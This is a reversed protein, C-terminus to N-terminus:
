PVCRAADPSVKSDGWEHDGCGPWWARVDSAGSHTARPWGDGFACKPYSRNHWRVLQRFRCNGCTRAADEHTRRRTLPHIGKAADAHQRLTRRRDASLKEVPEVDPLAIPEMDFLAPESM